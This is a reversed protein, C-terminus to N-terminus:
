ITSYHGHALSNVNDELIYRKDDFGCLGTKNVTISHLNHNISRILNFSVKQKLEENTTGFIAQKYQEHKLTKIVYKKIGKATAKSKDDSKLISYMKSRLGIFEQIPEANTEDKFKGIVKKNAESYCFHEKPYDSTDFLEKNDLMDKYFDNTKIHYTLSDTDTFCLKANDSYKSKIFNYHFDYMLVKSLDLICMGIVMPRNYKVQTKQMECAVLENTFIKFNRFYPKSAENIFKKSNNILSVNIRKEVNECTKGFIANNFLKFLDKEFDNKSQARKQTNFNIYQELFKEQKFSLVSHIKSLKLGLSLYLKLNRYHLVYNQKNYLNPILKKVKCEGIELQQRLQEMKPSPKFLTSEPALPYDNFYDHKEVPVDLDVEFIYGRESNDDINMISESTFQTVDDFKYDGIPLAQSMAWGYLNNADLYVIYSSEVNPNYNSMYKNNAKAYRTTITSIGGRMGKQVMQLMDLQGEKFCEIKVKTMKLMADWSFGPATYYHCPDLGYYNMCMDRFAEFVDALLVVDTKLYLNLYDHFTKCNSLKWVQQALEYDKDSINENNLTSYFEDKNPLKTEDLKNASNFWDYPFVGKQRLLQKLDTSITNFEKNFQKFKTEDKTKNLSNVLAELSALTFQASDLFNLKGISFSLYKEMTNPICNLNKKFKGATQLILHSDYGKLNHFIVPIKINKYSYQINCYSHAPGRYLGTLHDHDRVRDTGLSENCLYCNEAQKFEKEQQPTIIMKKNTKLLINIIFEEMRILYELFDEMCRDGDFQQYSDNLLNPYCSVLKCGIHNVKHTQYINTSEGKQQNVPILISECDAYFVFPARIQKEINKFENYHNGDEPLVKVIEDKFESCKNRKIHNDYASKITFKQLCKSCCFVTHSDNKIFSNLNKIWVYHAKDDNYIRLLNIPEKESTIQNVYEIEYNNMESKVDLGFVNIPIKNFQEFIPYSLANVPFNIGDFNLENEYQRYNSVRDHDRKIDKYHLASLIAYKFCKDDNNQVNICCKKNKIHTPLDIYSSGKFPKYKVVKIILYDISVLNWDSGRAIFRDFNNNISDFLINYKAIVDLPSVITTATDNLEATQNNINYAGSSFVAQTREETNDGRQMTCALKFLVKFTQFKKQYDNLKTIIYQKMRKSYDLIDNFEVNSTTIITELAVDGFTKVQENIEINQNDIPQKINEFNKKLESIVNSKVKKIETIQNQEKLMSQTRKTDKLIQKSEPLVVYGPIYINNPSIIGKKLKSILTKRSVARHNLLDLGIQKPLKFNDPNIFLGNKKAVKYSNIRGTKKNIFEM